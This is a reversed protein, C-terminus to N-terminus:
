SFLGWVKFYERYIDCAFFQRYSNLITFVEDLLPHLRINHCAQTKRIWNLVVMSDGFIQLTEIGREGLFNLLLKLTMLGAYNNTGSGLGMSLNFYHTNTLYIVAGGGCNQGNKQSAGDFYSWPQSHDVFKAEVIRAPHEDRGQLFHSLISLSQAV